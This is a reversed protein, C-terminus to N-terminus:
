PISSIKYGTTESSGGGGLGGWRYYSTISDNWIRLSFKYAHFEGNSDLYVDRDLVNLTSDTEGYNVSIIEDIEHSSSGSDGLFNSVEEHVAYKGIYKNRFDNKKDDEKNCSLFILGSILLLIPWSKRKM